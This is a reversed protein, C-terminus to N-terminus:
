KKQKKAKKYNILTNLYLNHKELTQQVNELLKIDCEEYEDFSINDLSKYANNIKEVAGNNMERGYQMIKESIWNLVEFVEKDEKNVMIFLNKILQEIQHSIEDMKEKDFYADEWQKLQVEHYLLKEGVIGQYLPKCEQVKKKVVRTPKTLNGTKYKSLDYVNTGFMWYFCNDGLDAINVKKIKATAVKLLLRYSIHIFHVNARFIREEKTAETLNKKDEM